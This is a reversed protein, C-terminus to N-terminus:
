APQVFCQTVEGEPCSCNGDKQDPKNDTQFDHYYDFTVSERLNM